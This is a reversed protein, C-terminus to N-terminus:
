WSLLRRIYRRRACCLGLLVEWATNVAPLGAARLYRRFRRRVCGNLRGRVKRGCGRAQRACGCAECLVAMCQYGAALRLNGQVPEPIIDAGRLQPCGRRVAFGLAVRLKGRVAVPIMEASCLWPGATVETCIRDGAECPWPAQRACGRTADIYLGAVSLRCGGGLGRLRHFLSGRIMREQKGLTTTPEHQPTGNKSGLPDPNHLM